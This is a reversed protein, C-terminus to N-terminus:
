ASTIRVGYDVGKAVGYLLNCNYYLIGDSDYWRRFQVPLGIGPIVVTEVEIGAQTAMESDVTRGAMLLSAKQFAFGALNEGNDDAIDTEYSDFKAVRPVNAEAKDSSMGPFEASNLTKVLSGYYSPNLFVARDSQMAKKTDTLTAGLDVLNDRDFNAATITSSTTFNAATILNWVDGFVKDGLAQLAPQVFLNNLNISSKSREVDTFGYTFGYHTDLNITVATMAVDEAATKYGSSMDAATPKTPYRTTVSEGANRIDDSFDTTLAALPAFLSQLGPLSEQAIQALNVGAITNAM